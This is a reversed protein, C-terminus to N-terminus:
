ANHHQWITLFLPCPCKHVESGQGGEGGEGMFIFQNSGSLITQFGRKDLDMVHKKDPLWEINIIASSIRM